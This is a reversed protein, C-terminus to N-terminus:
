PVSRRALPELRRAHHIFDLVAETQYVSSGNRNVVGTMARPNPLWRKNEIFASAGQNISPKCVGVFRKGFPERRSGWTLDCRGLVRILTFTLFLRM